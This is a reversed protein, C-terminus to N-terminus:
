CKKLLVSFNEHYRLGWTAISHRDSERPVIVASPQSSPVTKEAFRLVDAFVSAMASLMRIENSERFPAVRNEIEAFTIGVSWVDSPLGYDNGKLFIEPARYWLTVMDPTM